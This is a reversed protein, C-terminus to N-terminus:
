KKNKLKLYEKYFKEFEEIDNQKLYVIKNLSAISLIDKGEQSNNFDELLKELRSLDEKKIDKRVMGFVLSFLKPSYAIIKLEKQLQPNLEIATKYLEDSVVALSDKNFFVEYVIKIRNSLNIEEDIISKYSKGYNDLIFKDFWIKSLADEVNFAINIGHLQNIGIKNLKNKILYYNLYEKKSKQFTFFNTSKEKLINNDLYILPSIMIVDLKKKNLYDDLIDEEKNYFDITINLGSNSTLINSFGKLAIAAEKQSIYIHKYLFGLKLEKSEQSFLFSSFILLFLVLKKM